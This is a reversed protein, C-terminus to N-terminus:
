VPELFISMLGILVVPILILAIIVILLIVMIRRARRTEGRWSRAVDRIGIVPGFALCICALAIGSSEPITLYAIGLWGLFWVVVLRLRLRDSM